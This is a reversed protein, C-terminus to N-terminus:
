REESLISLASFVLGTLIVVSAIRAFAQIVESPGNERKSPRAVFSAWKLFANFILTEVLHLFKQPM